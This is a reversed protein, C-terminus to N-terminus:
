SIPNLMELALRCRKDVDWAHVFAYRRAPTDPRAAIDYEGYSVVVDGRESSRSKAVRLAAIPAGVLPDTDPAAARGDRVPIGALLLRLDDSRFEKLAKARGDTKWASGFSLSCDAATGRGGHVRRLRPEVDLAHGGATASLPYSIGGDLTVRWAGDDARRWATFYHGAVAPPEDTNTTWALFPGSTWGFDGSASVSALDPRWRLPAGPASGAETAARAPHPAPDLLVASDALYELFAARTGSAIARQAFAIDADAITRAGPEGAGATTAALTAVGLACVVATAGHTM